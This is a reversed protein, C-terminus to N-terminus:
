PTRNGNNKNNFYNTYITFSTKNFSEIYKEYPIPTLVNKKDFFITKRKM